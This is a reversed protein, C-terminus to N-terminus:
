DSDQDEDSVQDDLDTHNSVRQNVDHIETEVWESTTHITTIITKAIRGGSVVLQRQSFQGHRHWELKAIRGFPSENPNINRPMEKVIEQASLHSIAM